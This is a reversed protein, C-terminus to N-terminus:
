FVILLASVVCACGRVSDCFQVVPMLHLYSRVEAQGPIQPVRLQLLAESLDRLDIKGDGNVDLKSFLDGLRKEEDADLSEVATSSSLPRHNDSPM